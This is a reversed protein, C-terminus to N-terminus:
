ELDPPGVGRKRRSLPRNKNIEFILVSQGPLGRQKQQQKSPKKRRQKVCEECVPRTGFSLRDFRWSKALAGCLECRRHIM